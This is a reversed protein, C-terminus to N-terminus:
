INIVFTATDSKVVALFQHALGDAVGGDAVCGDNAICGLSGVYRLRADLHRHLCQKIGHVIEHEVAVTNLNRIQTCERETYTHLTRSRFGLEGRIERLVKATHVDAEKGIGLQFGHNLNKM